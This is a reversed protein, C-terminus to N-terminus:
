QPVEAPEPTVTAGPRASQIGEVVVRSDPELGSAIVRWGDHLTGITVVRREVTDDDGVVMVVRQTQDTGLAEDPVLLRPAPPDLQLRVRGFAGPVLSEDDNDFVARALLTGTAEDVRNDLFDLSGRRDFTENGTLQLEVPVPETARAVVGRLRLATPEDVPFQVYIPDLSVITTLVTADGSGGSVVNGETVLARGVRGSVPAVVRTFELALEASELAARAAALSAAATDM